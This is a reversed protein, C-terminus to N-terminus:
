LMDKFQATVGRFSGLQSVSQADYPDTEYINFSLTVNAYRGDDLVPKQYDIAVGGIVVGKVIFVIVAALLVVLFISM